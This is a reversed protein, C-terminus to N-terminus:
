KAGAKARRRSVLRRKGLGALSRTYHSVEPPPGGDVGYAVGTNRDLAGIMARNEDGMEMPARPGTDRVLRFRSRGGNPAIYGARRLVVLFRRAVERDVETCLAVKGTDFVRLQRIARWMLDRRSPKPKPNAEYAPVRFTPM